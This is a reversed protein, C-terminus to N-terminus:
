KPSISSLLPVDIDRQRSESHNCVLVETSCLTILFSWFDYHIKPFMIFLLWIPKIILYSLLGLSRTPFTVSSDFTLQIRRFFASYFDFGDYWFSSLLFSTMRRLKSRLFAEPFNLLRVRDESFSLIFIGLQYLWFSSLRFPSTLTAIRIM